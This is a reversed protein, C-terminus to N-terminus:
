RVRLTKQGLESRSKKGEEIFKDKLESDELSDILGIHEKSFAGHLSKYLDTEGDEIEKEDEVEETSEDEEVEEVESSEETTPEESETEEVEDIEKDEVAEEVIADKIEEKAEEGFVEDFSQAIINEAENESATVEIGM